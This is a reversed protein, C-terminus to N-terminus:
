DAKEDYERNSLNSSLEKSWEFGIGDWIIQIDDKLHVGVTKKFSKLMERFKDTVHNIEFIVHFVTYDQNSVENMYVSYSYNSNKYRLKKEAVSIDSHSCLLSNFSSVNRCIGDKTNFPLLYEVKIM